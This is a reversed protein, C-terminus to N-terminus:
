PCLAPANRLVCRGNHLASLRTLRYAVLIFIGCVAAALILRGSLTYAVVKVALAVAGRVRPASALRLFQGCLRQSHQRKSAAPLECHRQTAPGIGNGIGALWVTQSSTSIAAGITISNCCGKIAGTGTSLCGSLSLSLTLALSACKSSGDSLICCLVSEASQRIACVALTHRLEVYSSGGGGGGNIIQHACIEM